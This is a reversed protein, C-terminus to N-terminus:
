GRFRSVAEAISPGRIEIRALDPTGLALEEAPRMTRDCLEFPPMGRDAMPDFGTLAAAVADTCAPNLGAVISGLSVPQTRDLLRGEGGAM